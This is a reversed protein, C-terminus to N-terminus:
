QPRGFVNRIVADRRRVGAAYDRRIMHDQQQNDGGDEDDNDGDDADDPDPLSMRRCM